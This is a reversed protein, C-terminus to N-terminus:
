LAFRLGGTLRQQSEFWTYSASLGFNETFMLVFRGRGGLESSFYDRYEASLDLELWELLLTRVGFEIGYGNQTRNRSVLGGGTSVPRRYEGRLYKLDLVLDTTDSPSTIFGVGAEFDQRLINSNAVAQSTTSDTEEYALLIRVGEPSDFSLRGGFGTPEDVSGDLGDIDHQVYNLDLYNYSFPSSRYQAEATSAAAVLVLTPLTLRLFHLAQAPNSNGHAGEFCRQGM